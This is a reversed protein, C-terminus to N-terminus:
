DILGVQKSDASLESALLGITSVMIHAERMSWDKITGNLMGTVLRQSSLLLCLWYSSNSFCSSSLWMGLVQETNHTHGPFSVLLYGSEWSKSLPIHPRPILSGVEM